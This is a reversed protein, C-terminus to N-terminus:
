SSINVTRHGWFATPLNSALASHSSFNPVTHSLPLLILVQHMGQNGPPGAGGNALLDATSSISPSSIQQQMQASQSSFRPGGVDGGNGNGGNPMGGGGFPGPDPSFHSNHNLQSFHQQQQSNRQQQQQQQQQFDAFQKFQQQQQQFLAFPTPPGDNGARCVMDPQPFGPQHQQPHFNGQSTSPMDLMQHPHQQQMMSDNNGNNNAAAAAMQQQQQHYWYSPPGNIMMTNNMHQLAGGNGFASPPPALAACESGVSPGGGNACDM